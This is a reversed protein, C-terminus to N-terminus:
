ERLFPMAGRQCLFARVQFGWSVRMSEGACVILKRLAPLGLVVCTSNGLQTGRSGDEACDLVTAGITARNWSRAFDAVRLDCRVGLEGELDVHDM